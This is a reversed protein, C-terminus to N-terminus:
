DKRPKPFPGGFDRELEDIEDRLIEEVLASIDKKMWRAACRIREVLEPDLRYTKPVTAPAKTRKKAKRRTKKTRSSEGGEIPIRGLRDSNKSEIQDNM